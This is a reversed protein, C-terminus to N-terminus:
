SYPARNALETVKPFIIDKFRFNRIMSQLLQFTTREVQDLRVINGSGYNNNTVVDGISLRKM